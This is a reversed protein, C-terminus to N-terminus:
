LLITKNRGNLLVNRPFFQGFNPLNLNSVMFFRTPIVGSPTISNFNYTIYDVKLLTQVSYINIHVKLKVYNTKIKNESTAAEYVCKIHAKKLKKRINEWSDSLGKGPLTAM